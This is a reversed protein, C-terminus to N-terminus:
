CSRWRRPARSRCTRTAPRRWRIMQAGLGMILLMPTARRDGFEEYAIHIGNSRRHADGNGLLGAV